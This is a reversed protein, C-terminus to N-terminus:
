HKAQAHTAKANKLSNYITLLKNHETSLQSWSDSFGLGFFPQTGNITRQATEIEAETYFRRLGKQYLEWDCNENQLQVLTSLAQFIRKRPQTLEGYDVAWSCWQGAAEYDGLALYIHAKLEGIRLTDWNSGKDFRVGILHSLLHQDDLAHHEILDLLDALQENKMSPLQLIQPRLVAGKNRNNWVLDDVPYIESMGPIIIRCCYLGCHLYERQYVTFGHGAILSKLHQEEDKTSGSFSWPSFSFDPEDCFMSWSLLGDSDIFHNELNYPEAVLELNHVPHTFDHLQDLKRGQLLETLTREIAVEFRCNAGFAAYAGGNDKDILTVCIVPFQGGLSSDHIAVSFGCKEINNRIELLHPFAELNGDPVLPLSLGEAIVTNKVYREIIESLAQSTCESPSNGAAMGNSVYLNNLLSIPFYCLNSDEVHTFPLACVGRHPRDTNNDLLHELQLEGEPDYFGLLSNNLLRTGTQPHIYDVIATTPSPPSFWLEDPFFTFWHNNIKDTNEGIFYESFFFDTALREIFEGMGSAISALKTTGKGNTYLAPCSSAQLHVSWCHPVPNLHSTESLEIGLTQLKKEVLDLTTELPSDKGPITTKHSM